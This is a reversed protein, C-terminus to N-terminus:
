HRCVISREKILTLPRRNHDMIGADHLVLLKQLQIWRHDLGLDLSIHVRIDVHSLVGQLVEFGVSSHVGM